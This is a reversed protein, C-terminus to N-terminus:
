KNSAASFEETWDDEEQLGDALTGEWLAHEELEEQWASPDNRLAEYAANAKEFIIKRRYEEVAEAIIEQISRKQQSLQRIENVEDHTRQSIRVTCTGM